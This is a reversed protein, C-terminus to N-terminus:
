LLDSCAAEFADLRTQSGSFTKDVKCETDGVKVSVTLTMAGVCM